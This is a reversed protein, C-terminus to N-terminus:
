KSCLSGCTRPGGDKAKPIQYGAELREPEREMEQRGDLGSDEVAGGAPMSSRDGRICKAGSESAPGRLAVSREM